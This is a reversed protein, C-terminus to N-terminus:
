YSWHPIEAEVEDEERPEKDLGDEHDKWVPFAPCGQKRLERIIANLGKTVATDVDEFLDAKIPKGASSITYTQESNNTEGAEMSTASGLGEGIEKFEDNRQMDAFFLGRFMAAHGLGFALRNIDIPHHSEKIRVFEYAVIRSSDGRSKWNYGITAVSAVVEIAFGKAEIEDILAAVVAAKNTIAEASVGGNECLNYVITIVQKKRSRGKEPVRMNLPNGAIARPVNPTTGAIGYKTMKPSIPNLARIYGRTREITEGGEKWGQVALDLAEDFSDCGNWKPNWSNRVNHRAWWKSGNDNRFQKAFVELSSWSAVVMKSAPYESNKQYVGPHVHRTLDPADGLEIIQFDKTTTPSSTEEGNGSGSMGPPVVYPSYWGPLAM